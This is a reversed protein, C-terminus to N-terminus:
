LSLWRKLRPVEESAWQLSLRRRLFFDFLDDMTKMAAEIRYIRELILGERDSAEENEGASAPLRMSQFQFPDAKFTFEWDLSERKLEIRAERVRKGERLAAKGERLDAHLGQCVVTESYEGAGSELVVRRLFHVEVDDKGPVAIRGNREESKFWLWTLFERGLFSADTQREPPNETELTFGKSLSAIKRATTSDLFATDWPLYPKLSHRFSVKFLDEFDMFVKRSLSGFLLRERSPAWLIEHFSPVPHAKKLLDEQLSEKLKRRGDKSLRTKETGHLARQEGELLRVRLLAPPVAKRDIRLCFLLYAGVAYDATQFQTDLINELSTWGISKEDAGAAPEQFAYKKLQRDFFDSFSGPAEGTVRCRSFSITGKLFGM